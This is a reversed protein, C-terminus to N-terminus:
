ISSVAWNCHVMKFIASGSLVVLIEISFIGRTKQHSLMWCWIGVRWRTVGTWLSAISTLSQLLWSKKTGCLTVVIWIPFPKPLGTVRDMHWQTKIVFVLQFQLYPEVLLLLDLFGLVFLVGVIASLKLKPVMSLPLHSSFGKWCFIVFIFLFCFFYFPFSSCFVPIRYAGLFCTSFITAHKKKNPPSKRKHKSNEIPMCGSLYIMDLPWM